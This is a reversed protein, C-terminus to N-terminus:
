YIRDTESKMKVSQLFAMLSYRNKEYYLDRGSQLTSRECRIQREEEDWSVAPKVERGVLMLTEIDIELLMNCSCPYLILKEKDVYYDWFCAPPYELLGAPYNLIHWENGFYVIIPSGFFPILFVKNEIYLIFLFSKADLDPLGVKEVTGIRMDKCYIGNGEDPLIWTKGDSYSVDHINKGKSVEHWIVTKSETDLEALEDFDKISFFARKGIGSLHSVIEHPQCGIKKSWDDIRECHFTHLNISVISAHIFQPIVWITNNIKITRSGQINIDPTLKKYEGTKEIRDYVLWEDSLFGPVMYIKNECEFTGIYCGHGFIDSMYDAKGTEKDIRWLGSYSEMGQTWVGDKLNCSQFFTLADNKEDM